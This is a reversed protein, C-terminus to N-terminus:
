GISQNGANANGSQQYVLLTGVAVSGSNAANLNGVSVQKNLSQWVVVGGGGHPAVMEEGSLEDMIKITKKGSIRNCGLRHEPERRQRERQDAGCGIEEVTL